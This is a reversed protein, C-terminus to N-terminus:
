MSHKYMLFRSSWFNFAKNQCALLQSRSPCVNHKHVDLFINDIKTSTKWLNLSEERLLFYLTLFIRLNHLSYINKLHFLYLFFLQKWCHFFFTSGQNECIQAVNQFGSHSFYANSLSALKERVELPTEGFSKVSAPWM